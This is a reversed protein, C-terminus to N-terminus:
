PRWGRARAADELGALRRELAGPDLEGVSTAHVIGGPLAYTVLPCVAVGYLNALIGDRDWAVPFTWRHRRVLARLDGRDGRISVAALQVDPHRAGQRQLRDLEGTCETGRTALFALVFPGREALQCSNLIGRGRVSCAPRDGAAGQGAERAVNVDGQVDGLALPAAFPPVASGARPGQSGVHESRLTNLSVYAILAVLALAVFWGYRGRVSPRPPRASV